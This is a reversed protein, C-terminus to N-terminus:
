AQEAFNLAEFHLPYESCGKGQPIYRSADPTLKVRFPNSTSETAHNIKCCKDPQSIENQLQAKNIEHNVGFSPRADDCPSVALAVRVFRKLM